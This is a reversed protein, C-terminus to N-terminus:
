CLKYLRTTGREWYCLKHHQITGEGTGRGTYNKISGLGRAGAGGAYHYNYFGFPTMPWLWYNPQIM